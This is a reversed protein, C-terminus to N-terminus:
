KQEEIFQEWRAYRKTFDPSEVYTGYPSFKYRCRRCNVGGGMTTVIDGAHTTQFGCVDCTRIVREEDM